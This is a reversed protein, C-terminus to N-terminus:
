LSLGVLSEPGVGRARLRHALRNARRNLEAYSLSSGEFVVAVADPTAAARREFREHLRAVWRQVRASLCGGAEDRREPGRVLSGREEADLMRLRGLAADPSSRAMSE